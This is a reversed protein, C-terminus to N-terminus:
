NCMLYHQKVVAAGHMGVRDVADKERLTIKKDLYLDHAETTQVGRLLNSGTNIDVNQYINIICTM